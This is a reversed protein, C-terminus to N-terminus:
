SAQLCSACSSCLARACPGPRSALRILGSVRVRKGRERRGQRRRTGVGSSKMAADKERAISILGDAYM